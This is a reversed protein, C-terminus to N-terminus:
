DARDDSLLWAPFRYRDGGVSAEVGEATRAIAVSEAGDAAALGAPGIREFRRFGGDPHRVILLRADPGEGREVACVHAFRAAGHVACDIVDDAAKASSEGASCGALRLRRLWAGDSNRL